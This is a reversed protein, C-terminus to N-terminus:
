GVQTDLLDLWRNAVSAVAAYCEELTEGELFQEFVQASGCSGEAANVYAELPLSLQMAKVLWAPLISQSQSHTSPRM